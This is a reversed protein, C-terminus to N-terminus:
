ARHATGDRRCFLYNPNYGFHQSYQTYHVCRAPLQEHPNRIWFWQSADGSRYFAFDFDIWFRQHCYHHLVDSPDDRYAEGLNARYGSGLILRRSAGSFECFHHPLHGHFNPPASDDFCWQSFRDFERQLELGCSPCVTPFLM